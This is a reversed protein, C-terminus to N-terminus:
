NFGTFIQARIIQHEKEEGNIRLTETRTLERADFCTPFSLTRLQGPKGGCEIRIEIVFHEQSILLCFTILLGTIVMSHSYEYGDPNGNPLFYWDFYQILPYDSRKSYRKVLENAMFTVVAPSIWERAHIGVFYSHFLHLM